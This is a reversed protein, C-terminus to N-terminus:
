ARKGKMLQKLIATRQQIHHHFAEIQLESEINPYQQIVDELDNRSFSLLGVDSLAKVTASRPENTMLAQEGFFDGGTLTALLLDESSTEGANEGDAQALSTYVGVKGALIFYMSDGPEGEQVLVAGQKAKEPTFYSVIKRRDEPLLQSFLPVRALVTELMRHRYLDKLMETIYPRTRAVKMVVDRPIELIASTQEAVVSVNQDVHGFLAFEGFYSGAELRALFTERREKDKGLIKVSGQLIVFLSRRVNGNTLIPEDMAIHSLLSYTQIGRLESVSLKAFLPIQKLSFIVDQPDVESGLTSDVHEDTLEEDGQPSSELAEITKITDNYDQLQDFSVTKRLMFLEELREIMEENEPDLRVIMQAAAIAKVIQGRDAYFFAVLAYEQIAADKEGVREYLKALALQLPITHDSSESYSALLSKYHEIKQHLDRVDHETAM